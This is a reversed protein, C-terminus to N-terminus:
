RTFCKLVLYKGEAHFALTEGSYALKVHKKMRRLASRFRNVEIEVYGKFPLRYPLKTMYVGGGGYAKMEWCEKLAKMRIRARPHLTYAKKLFELLKLVNINIGEELQAFKVLNLIGRTGHVDLHLAYKFREANIHVCEERLKMVLKECEIFELSKVLHRTTTYPIGGVIFRDLPSSGLKAVCALSGAPGIGLLEHNYVVFELKEGEELCVSAFDLNKLFNERDMEAITYGEELVRIMNRSAANKVQLYEEKSSMVIDSEKLQLTVESEDSGWQLVLKLVNLPLRYIGSFPQVEEEEMSLEANGETAHLILKKNYLLNIVKFTPELTGTFKDFIRYIRKLKGISTKWIM